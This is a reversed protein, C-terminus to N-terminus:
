GHRRRVVEFDLVKRLVHDNERRLVHGYRQMKNAKAVGDLIEEVGMLNKPEIRKEILKIKSM